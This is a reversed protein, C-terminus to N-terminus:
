SGDEPSWSHRLRIWCNHFKWGPSFRHVSLSDLISMWLAISSAHSTFCFFFTMNCLWFMFSSLFFMRACCNGKAGSVHYRYLKSLATMLSRKKMHPCFMVCSETSVCQNWLLWHLLSGLLYNQIPACTWLRQARVSCSKCTSIWYRLTPIQESIHTPLIHNMCKGDSSILTSRMCTHKEM